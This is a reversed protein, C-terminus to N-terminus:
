IRKLIKELSVIFIDFIKLFTIQHQTGHLVEGQSEMDKRKMLM